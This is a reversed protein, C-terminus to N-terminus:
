WSHSSEKGFENRVSYGCVCCNAWAAEVGDRIIFTMVVCGGQRGLEIDHIICLMFQEVCFRVEQGDM